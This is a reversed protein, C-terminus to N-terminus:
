TLYFLSCILAIKKDFINLTIFYILLTNATNSLLSLVVNVIEKQPNKFFKCLISLALFWFEKNQIRSGEDRVISPWTNFKFNKAHFLIRENDMAMSKSSFTIERCFYIILINVLFSILLLFILEQTM